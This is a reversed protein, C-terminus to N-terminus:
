LMFGIAKCVTLEDAREVVLRFRYILIVYFVKFKSIIYKYYLTTKLELILLMGTLNLYSM